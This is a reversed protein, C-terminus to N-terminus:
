LILTVKRIYSLPVAMIDCFSRMKPIVDKNSPYVTVFYKPALCGPTQLEKCLYDLFFLYLLYPLINM